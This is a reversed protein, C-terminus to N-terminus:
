YHSLTFRLAVLLSMMLSFLLEREEPVPLNLTVLEGIYLWYSHVLCAKRATSSVTSYIVPIM